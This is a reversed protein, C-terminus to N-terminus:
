SLLYFGNRTKENLLDQGPGYVNFIRFITFNFNNSNKIIYDESLKKHLGYYSLPECIANTNAKSVKNGYVSM